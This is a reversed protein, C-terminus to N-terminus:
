HGCEGAAVTGEAHGSAKTALYIGEVYGIFGLEESVRERAAPVDAAATPAKTAKAARVHEFRETLNHTVQSTLFELLPEVQGTEVAKEALPIAPGLDTGAPKLGTYPANEGARHLRVATEMFYRDALDKADANQTQVVSAQKFAATLEPEASAPAYPLVLNVNGTELANLAATAVPGGISDCHALITGPAVVVLLASAILLKLMTFDRGNGSKLWGRDACGGAIHASDANFAKIHILAAL